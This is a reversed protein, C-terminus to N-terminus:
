RGPTCNEFCENCKGHGNSDQMIIKAGCCNSEFEIEKPETEQRCNECIGNGNGRAATQLIKADCCKSILLEDLEAKQTEWEKALNERITRNETETYEVSTKSLEIKLEEIRTM